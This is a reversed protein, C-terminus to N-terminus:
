RAIESGWHSWQSPYIELYLWAVVLLVTHPTSVPRGKYKLPYENQLSNGLHLEFRCKWCRVDIGAHPTLLYVQSGVAWLELPVQLWWLQAFLGLLGAPLDPMFHAALRDCATQSKPASIGALVLLWWSGAHPEQASPFPLSPWWFPVSISGLMVLEVRRTWCLRGLSTCGCLAEDQGRAAGERLLPLQSSPCFLVFEIGRIHGWCCIKRPLSTQTERPTWRWGLGGQSLTFWLTLSHNPKSNGDFTRTESVHLPILQIQFDCVTLLWPGM